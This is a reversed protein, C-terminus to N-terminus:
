FYICLDFTYVSSCDKATQWPVEIGSFDAPLPVQIHENDTKYKTFSAYEYIKIDTIM